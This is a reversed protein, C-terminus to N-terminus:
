SHRSFSDLGAKFATSVRRGFVSLTEPRGLNLGLKEGWVVYAIMVLALPWATFMFLLVILGINVGSWGPALQQKIDHM